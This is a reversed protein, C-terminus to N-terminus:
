SMTKVLFHYVIYKLSPCNYQTLFDDFYITGTRNISSQLQIGALGIEGDFWANGGSFEFVSDFGIIFYVPKWGMWDITEWKGAEFGDSSDSFYFRFKVM